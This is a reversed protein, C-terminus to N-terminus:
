DEIQRPRAGGWQVGLAEALHPPRAGALMLDIALSLPGSIGTTGREYDRIGAGPDRGKLRLVRGFEAMTLPRGLGWAEGLQARANSMDEGTMGDAREITTAMNAGERKM